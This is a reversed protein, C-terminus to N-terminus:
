PSPSLVSWHSLSFKKSTKSVKTKRKKRGRKEKLRKVRTRDDFGFVLEEVSCGERERRRWRRGERERM